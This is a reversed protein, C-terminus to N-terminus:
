CRAQRVCERMERTFVRGRAAPLEPPATRGRPSSERTGQILEGAYWLVGDCDFLFTDYDSLIM